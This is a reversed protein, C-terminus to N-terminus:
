AAHEGLDHAVATQSQRRHIKGVRAFHDRLQAAKDGKGAIAALRFAPYLADSEIRTLFERLEDSNWTKM